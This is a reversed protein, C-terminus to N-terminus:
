VYVEENALKTEEIPKNLEKIQNELTDAKGQYYGADRILDKYEELPITIAQENGKRDIQEEVDRDASIDEYKYKGM